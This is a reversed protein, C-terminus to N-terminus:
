PSGADPSAGLVVSRSVPQYGCSCCGGGDARLEVTLSVPEEGDARVTLTHTGLALEDATCAGEGLITEGCRMTAGEVVVNAPTEGSASTVRLELPPACPGCFVASCDPTDSSGCAALALAILASGLLPALRRPSAHM